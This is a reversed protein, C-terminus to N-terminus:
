FFLRDTQFSRHHWNGAGTGSFGSVSAVSAGYYLDAPLVNAITTFSAHCFTAVAFLVTILYLNTTLITPILMM